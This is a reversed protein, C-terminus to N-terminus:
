SHWNTWDPTLPTPLLFATCLKHLSAQFTCLSNYISFIDKRNSLVSRSSSLYNFSSSEYSLPCVRGAEYWIVSFTESPHDQAGLEGLANRLGPWVLLIVTINRIGPQVNCDGLNCIKFFGPHRPRILIPERQTGKPMQLTKFGRQAATIHLSPQSDNSQVLAIPFDSLFPPYGSAMEVQPM